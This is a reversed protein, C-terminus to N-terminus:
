LTQVVRQDSPTASANRIGSEVFLYEADQYYSYVVTTVRYRLSCNDENL